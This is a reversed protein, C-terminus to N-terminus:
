CSPIIILQVKGSKEGVRELQEIYTLVIRIVTTAKDFTDLFLKCNLFLINQEKLYFLYGKRETQLNTHLKLSLFIKGLFATLQSTPTLSIALYTNAKQTGM